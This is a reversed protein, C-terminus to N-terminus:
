YHPALSERRSRWRPPTMFLMKVFNAIAAIVSKPATLKIACTSLPWPTARM